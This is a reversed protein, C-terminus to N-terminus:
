VNSVVRLCQGEGDASVCAREREGKLYMFVIRDDASRTEAASGHSRDDIWGVCM